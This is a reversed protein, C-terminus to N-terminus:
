NFSVPEANICQKYTMQIFEEIVPAFSSSGFYREKKPSNHITGCLTCETKDLNVPIGITVLWQCCGPFISTIVFEDGNKFVGQSHDKIAVVRQGVFFPPINNNM